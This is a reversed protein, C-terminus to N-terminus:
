TVKFTLCLQINILTNNPIRSLQPDKTKETKDFQNKQEEKLM